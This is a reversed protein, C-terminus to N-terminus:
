QGNRGEFEKIERHLRAAEEYNEEKVAKELNRRLTELQRQLRLKESGRSPIKGTHVPSQHIQKLVQNVSGQFAKYCNGCGFKGTERFDRFTRGCVPCTKEEQPAYATNFIDFGNFADFFDSFLDYM